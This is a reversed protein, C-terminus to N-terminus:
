GHVTPGLPLHAAIAAERAALTAFRARSAEQGFCEAALATFLTFHRAESAMLDAYVARLEAERLQNSLL